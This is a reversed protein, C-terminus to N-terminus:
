SHSENTVGDLDIQILKHLVDWATWDELPYLKNNYIVSIRWSNNGLNSVGLLYLEYTHPIDLLCKALNLAQQATLTTDTATPCILM